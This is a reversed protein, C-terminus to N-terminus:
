SKKTKENYKNIDEKKVDDFYYEGKYKYYDDMPDDQISVTYNSRSYNSYIKIYNNKDIYTELRESWIADKRKLYEDNFNNYVWRNNDNLTSNVIWDDYNEVYTSSIKNIYSEHYKSKVYNGKEINDPHVYEDYLKIHIADSKKIFDGDVEDIIWKLDNEMFIEDYRKSYRINSHGGTDWLDTFKNNGGYNRLEKDFPNYNYLTDLFPFKLHKPYDMNYVVMRYNNPENDKYNCIYEQDDSNQKFKYLYGKSKAYAIFKNLHTQKNFYVRDMFYVDKVEKGDIKDLKWLLARGEIYSKSDSHYLAILKVNDKNIAYFEIFKDCGEFRMCSQNLTTDEDENVYNLENYFEIIDDGEIEEFLDYDNELITAYDNVFSEIDEGLLGNPKFENPFLKNILRGIRIETIYKERLNKTRQIKSNFNLVFNLEDKNYNDDDLIKNSTVFNLKNPKDYIVDLLTQKKTENRNTDILKRAIPHNIKSLIDILNNSMVFPLENKAYSELIIDERYDNFSKLIKM